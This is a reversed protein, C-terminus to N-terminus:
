ELQLAHQWPAPWKHYAQTILRARAGIYAECCFHTMRWCGQLHRTDIVVNVIGEPANLPVYGVVDGKLVM